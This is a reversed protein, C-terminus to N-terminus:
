FTIFEYFNRNLYKDILLITNKFVTCKIPVVTRNLGQFVLTEHHMSEKRGLEEGARVSSRKWATTPGHGSAAHLLASLQLLKGRAAKERVLLANLRIRNTCITDCM